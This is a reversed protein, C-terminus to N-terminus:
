SKDRVTPSFSDHASFLSTIDCFLGFVFFFWGSSESLCFQELFLFNDHVFFSLTLRKKRPVFPFFVDGFFWHRLLASGDNSPKPIQIVSFAHDDGDDAM